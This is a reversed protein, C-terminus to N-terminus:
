RPYGCHTFTRDMKGEIGILRCASDLEEVLKQNDWDKACRQSLRVTVEGFAFEIPAIKPQYPPRCIPVFRYQDRSERLELTASVMATTHVRLNDWMFYKEEDFGDPSPNNEIDRCVHDIYDSFVVQNTTGATIRWWKRPNRVSGREYGPIYPNGAEVTMILNVSALAKSYHGSDRVRHRKFAYGKKSEIKVLSFQAEDTDTLRFRRVNAIGTRPPNSWFLRFRLQNIPTFANHSELGCKKRTIELEKLRQYIVQRSYARSGGNNVIFAARKDADMRPYLFVSMSLLFQDYGVLNTRPKNGTMQYPDVRQFWRYITTEDVGFKRAAAPVSVGVAYELCSERLYKPVGKSGATPAADHETRLVHDERTLGLRSREQARHSAPDRNNM